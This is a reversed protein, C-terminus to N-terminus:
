TSILFMAGLSLLIGLGQKPNIPENLFVMALVIALVPYLATLAAVLSVPGRSVAALFCLNGLNVFVGAIVALAIGKPHIDPRFNLSFLVLVTVCISGLALYVTASRPGIYETAIKPIFAYLGWFVFTGLAPILWETM